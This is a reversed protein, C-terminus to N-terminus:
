NGRKRKLNWVMHDMLTIRQGSIQNDFSDPQLFSLEKGVAISDAGKRETFQLESLAVLEGCYM